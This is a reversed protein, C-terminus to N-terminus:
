CCLKIGSNGNSGRSPTSTASNGNGNGNSGAGGYSAVSGISIKQQLSNLNYYNSACIGNGSNGSNGGNGGYGNTGTGWTGKYGNGGSGGYGGSGSDGTVISIQLSATNGSVLKAIIATGGHGGNGGRGGYGGHDPYHADRGHGGHGGYGGNGGNGAVIKILNSNLNLECNNSVVIANGGNGGDGGRGGDGARPTGDRDSGQGSGGTGGIAGNGGYIQLIGHNVGIELNSSIIASGGDGGKTGQGGDPAEGSGGDQETRQYTKGDAGKYGNGATLTLSDRNEVILNANPMNLVSAGNQGNSTADAAKINVTGITILKFDGSNNVKIADNGSSSTFRFNHLYLDTVNNADNDFVFNTTRTYGSQGYIYLAKVNSGINDFSKVGNYFDLLVISNDDTPITQNSYSQKLGSFKNVNKFLYEYNNVTGDSFKQEFYAKYTIVFEGGFSSNYLQLQLTSNNTNFTKEIVIGNSHEIKVYVSKLDDKRGLAYIKGSSDITTSNIDDVYGSEIIIETCDSRTMGDRSVAYLKFHKTVPANENITILDVGNFTFYKNSSGNKILKHSEGNEDVYYFSLYDNSGYTAKLAVNSASAFGRLKIQSKQKVQILDYVKYAGIDSATYNETPTLSKEGQSVFYGASTQIGLYVNSVEEELVTVTVQKSLGGCLSKVLVTFKGPKEATFRNNFSNSKQPSVNMIDGNDAKVNIVSIEVDRYTAAEPINIHLDLSESTKFEYSESIIEIDSYSVPNKLFKYVHSVVVGDVIAEIEVTAQIDAVNGNEWLIDNLEVSLKTGSLETECNYTSKIRLEVNKNTANLPYVTTKIDIDATRHNLINSGIYSLVAQTVPEKTAEIEFTKKFEGNDASVCVVIRGPRDATLINDHIYAGIDDSKTYDISFTANAFTANLPFVNAILQLEETHKFSLKNGLLINTVPERLLEIEYDEYYGDASIRLTVMGVQTGILTDGNIIEAEVTNNILEYIIEKNNANLPYVVCALKLEDYVKVSKASTLVIKTVPENIVNIVEETVVGDANAQIKIVGAREAFLHGDIIEAGTNGASVISYIINKYTANYPYVSATLKLSETVKFFKASTISIIDVPVKEVRIEITNSEVNDVIATVKIAKGVMNVDTIYLCDDVIEAGGDVMYSVGPNSVIAPVTSTLLEVPEGIRVISPASLKVSQVPLKGSRVQYVASQVSDAVAYVEILSGAPIDSDIKLLGSRSITAKGSKLIYEINNYTANLPYIDARFQLSEGDKSAVYDARLTISQVPEKLVNITKEASVGDATACVTVEGPRNSYLVGNEIRSNATDSVITYEVDKFTANDPKVSVFLELSQTHKFENVTLFNVSEVAIKNVRIVKDSYKDDVTVRITVEGDKEAFLVNGEIKANVINEGVISYVVGKNTANKPEVDADLVLFEGCIFSDASQVSVSEVPEKLVNITQETSVGDATAKVIVTGLGNASLINGLLTAGNATSSVIIYEVDKNTAQKPLVEANLELTETVKFSKSSTINISQVPEKVTRVTTSEFKTADRKSKATVTINIGIPANDALTLVGDKSIKAFSSNVSYEIDKYSANEPYITANFKISQTQSIEFKDNENNLTVKEVPIEVVRITLTNACNELEATIKAENGITANKSISVIGNKLNIGNDGSMKLSTERLTSHIPLVKPEVKYSEGPMLKIVSNEFEIRSVKVYERNLIPYDRGNLFRWAKDFNSWDAYCSKDNLEAKQKSYVASVNSEGFAVANDFEESLWKCNSVQGNLTEGVIQGRANGYIKGTNYSQTITADNIISKNLGVIGGSYITTIENNNVDGQNYCNSISSNNIGAIGGFYMGNQSNGNEYIKSRNGCEIIQGGSSNTGVIGGVARNGYVESDTTICGIIEGRNVGAIIGVNYDGCVVAKSIKLNEVTGKFVFSFVGVNNSTSTIHLNEISYQNGDYHGIFPFSASGIPAFDGANSFDLNDKQIFYADLHYRVNNFEEVSTIEYPNTATGYGNKFDSSNSDAFAIDIMASLGAVVSIITLIIISLFAKSKSKLM